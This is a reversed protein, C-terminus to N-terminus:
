LTVSMLSIIEISNFLRIVIGMCLLGYIFSILIGVKQEFRRMSEEFHHSVQQKQREKEEREQREKEERERQRREREM